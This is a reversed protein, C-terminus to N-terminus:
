LTCQASHESYVLEQGWESCVSTGQVPLIPAPLNRWILIKQLLLFGLCLLIGNDYVPLLCELYAYKEYKLFMCFVLFCLLYM